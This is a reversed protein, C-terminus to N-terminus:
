YLIYTYYRNFIGNRNKKDDNFSGGGMFYLFDVEDNEKIVTQNYAKYSVFAGNVQVSVLEPKAVQNVKLLETLLIGTHDVQQEKGNVLLRM